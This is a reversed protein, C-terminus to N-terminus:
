RAAYDSLVPVMTAYLPVLRPKGFKTVRITLIRQDLGADDRRLDLVESHHLGAVAILGM